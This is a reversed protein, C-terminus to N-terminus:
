GGSATRPFTSRQRSAPTGRGHDPRGPQGAVVQGRDVREGSRVGHHQKAAGLKATPATSIIRSRARAASCMGRASITSSWWSVFAVRGRARRLRGGLLKGAVDGDVGHAERAEDGVLLHQEAAVALRVVAM